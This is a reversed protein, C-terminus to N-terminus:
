TKYKANVIISNRLELNFIFIMINQSSYLESRCIIIQDM